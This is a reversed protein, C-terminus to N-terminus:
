DNHAHPAVRIDARVSSGDEPQIDAGFRRCLALMPRNSLLVYGRLIEVGHEAATELAGDLLRQTLDQTFRSVIVAIHLGAGNMAGESTRVM